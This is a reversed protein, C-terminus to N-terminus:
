VQALWTFFTEPMEAEVTEMARVDVTSNCGMLPVEIVESQPSWHMKLFRINELDHEIGAVRGHGYLNMTKGFQERKKLVVMDGVRVRNFREAQIESELYDFRCIDQAKWETDLRNSIDADPCFGMFVIHTDSPTAIDIASIVESAAEDGSNFKELANSRLDQLEGRNMKGASIKELIATYKM